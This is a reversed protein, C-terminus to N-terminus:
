KRLSREKLHQIKNDAPENKLMVSILAPHFVAPQREMALLIIWPNYLAKDHCCLVPWKQWKDGSFAPVGAASNGTNENTKTTPIVKSQAASNWVIMLFDNCGWIPCQSGISWRSYNEQVRVFILAAIDTIYIFQQAMGDVNKNHAEEVWHKKEAERHSCLSSRKADNLSQPSQTFSCWLHKKICILIPAISNM